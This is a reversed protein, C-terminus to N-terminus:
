MCTCKRVYMYVHVCVHVDAYVGEVHMSIGGGRVEAGYRQRAHAERNFIFTNRVAGVVQVSLRYTYMCVYMCVYVFECGVVRTHM